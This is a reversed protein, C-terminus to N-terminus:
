DREGRAWRTAAAIEDREFFRMEATFLPDSAKTGWEEWNKDGVIAIRGFSDKHRADFKLERWLGGLDWGTFDPELEILMAIRGASGREVREFEPVFKNYDEGSLRGGARIRLLDGENRLTLM